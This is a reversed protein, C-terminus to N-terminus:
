KTCLYIYIDAYNPHLGESICTNNFKIGSKINAIQKNVKEICWIKYKLHENKLLHLLQGFNLQDLAM